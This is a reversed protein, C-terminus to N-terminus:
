TRRLVNRFMSRQRYRYVQFHGDFSAVDRIGLRESISVLSADAFDMPLDAYKEMLEVTRRFDTRGLEILTVAGREIWRLFDAQAQQSFDLLYCVETVVALNSIMTGAFGQV